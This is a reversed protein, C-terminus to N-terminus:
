DKVSQWSQHLWDARQCLLPILKERWAQCSVQGSSMGGHAFRQFFNPQYLSMEVGTLAFFLASLVRELQNRNEPIPVHCLAQQMEIWLYPDGRLGWPAKAPLFLDGIVAWHRELPIRNRDHALCGFTYSLRGLWLDAECKFKLWSDHALPLEGGPLLMQGVVAHYASHLRIEPEALGDDFLDAGLCGVIQDFLVENGAHGSLLTPDDARMKRMLQAASRPADLLVFALDEREPRKEAATQRKVSGECARM